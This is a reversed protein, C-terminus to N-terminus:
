VKTDTDIKALAEEKISCEKCDSVACLYPYVAYECQRGIHSDARKAGEIHESYDLLTSFSRKCEPCIFSVPHLYLTRM